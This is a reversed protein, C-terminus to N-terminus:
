AATGWFWRHAMHAARLRVRAPTEFYKELAAALILSLLTTLPVAWAGLNHQEQWAACDPDPFGNSKEHRCCGKQWSKLAELSLEIRGGARGTLPVM